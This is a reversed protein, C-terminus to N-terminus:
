GIKVNCNAIDYTSKNSNFWNALPGGKGFVNLSFNAKCPNQLVACIHTCHDEAISLTPSTMIKLKEDQQAPRFLKEL